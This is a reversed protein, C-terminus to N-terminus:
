RDHDADALARTIQDNLKLAPGERGELEEDAIEGAIHHLAAMLAARLDAANLLRVVTEAHAQDYCTAIRDDTRSDTIRYHCGDPAAQDPISEYRYREAM